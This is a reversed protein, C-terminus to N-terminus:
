LQNLAEKLDALKEYPMNVGKKTPRWEGDAEYFTRIDLLEKGKFESSSIKIRETESKDVWM